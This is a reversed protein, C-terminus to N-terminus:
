CPGRLPGLEAERLSDYIGLTQPVQSQPECAPGTAPCGHTQSLEWTLFLGGRSVALCPTPAWGLMWWM